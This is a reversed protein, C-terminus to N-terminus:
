QIYFGFTMLNIYSLSVQVHMNVAINNSTEWIQLEDIHENTSSHFIHYVRIVVNDNPVVCIYSSAVTNLSFSLSIDYSSEWVQFRFYSLEYFYSYHNGHISTISHTPKPIINTLPYLIEIVYSFFSSSIYLTNVIVVLM